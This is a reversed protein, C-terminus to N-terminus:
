ASPIFDQKSSACTDFLIRRTGNVCPLVRASSNRDLQTSVLIRCRCTHLIGGKRRLVYVLVGFVIGMVKSLSAPWVSNEDKQRAQM